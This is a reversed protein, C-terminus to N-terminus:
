PIQPDCIRAEFGTLILMSQYIQYFVFNEKLCALVLNGEESKLCSWGLDNNVTIRAM